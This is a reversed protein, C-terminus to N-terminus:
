IHILSLTQVGIMDTHMQEYQEIVALREEYEAQIKGLPTEQEIGGLMDQLGTKADAKSKKLADLRDQIALTAKARANMQELAKTEDVLQQVLQKSVDKYKDTNEIDYLLSALSSSNGFLAQQKQLSAISNKVGDVASQAQQIATKAVEDSKGEIGNIFGQSFDSGVGMMVRSPSRIKLVSKAKAVANSAMDSIASTVGSVSSKIGNILGQM